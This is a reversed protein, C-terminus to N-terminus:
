KFHAKSPTEISAISKQLSSNTFTFPNVVRTELGTVLMRSRRLKAGALLSKDRDDLSNMTTPPKDARCIVKWQSNSVLQERGEVKM